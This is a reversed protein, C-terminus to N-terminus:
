GTYALLANTQYRGFLDKHVVAILRGFPVSAPLQETQKFVSMAIAAVYRLEFRLKRVVAHSDHRVDQCTDTGVGCTAGLSM